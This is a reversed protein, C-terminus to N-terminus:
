RKKGKTRAKVKQEILARLEDLDDGGIEEERVLHSLLEAPNGGFMRSTVDQVMSRRALGEEVLPTYIFQRGVKHHGVLGRAEMKSLMTAITSAASGREPGVVEHVRTVSGEGEAWLVRMIALQLDGLRIPEGEPDKVPGKSKSTKRRAM